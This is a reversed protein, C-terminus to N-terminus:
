RATCPASPPIPNGQSLLSAYGLPVDRGDGGPGGPNFFLHPKTEPSNAALIRVVSIKIKLGAPNAYDLPADIYTCQLRQGLQAIYEDPAEHAPFRSFYDDCGGWVPAQNKYAALPDEDGGCASLLSGALVSVLFFARKSM